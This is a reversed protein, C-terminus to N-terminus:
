RVVSVSERGLLDGEVMDKQEAAAHSDPDDSETAVCSHDWHSDLLTMQVTCCAGVLVELGVVRVGSAHCISCVVLLEPLLDALQIRPADPKVLEQGWQRSSCIQHLHRVVISQEQLHM